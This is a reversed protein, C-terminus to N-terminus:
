GRKTLRASLRRGSAVLRRLAAAAWGNNTAQPTTHAVVTRSKNLVTGILQTKQLLEAARRVHDAPTSAEEVVLLAAEVNPVFALADAWSLLPPLDFLVIRGPYREKLEEVLRTMRPSSLMEASNALPKGGPLFVFNGIDSPHVLLESLTADGTLYDSLGRSPELGFYSHVSPHRIDADVLLVSHGVEQALSIALNIATLTKGEHDGPSTVALTNWGHERMRQLVHTRLIKYSETFPGPACASVIRQDRLWDASVGETRTQTYRIPGAPSPMPPMSTDFAAIDEREERARQLAQKIREM